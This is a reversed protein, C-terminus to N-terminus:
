FHLKLIIPLHDSYGKRNSPEWRVPFGTQPDLLFPLRIAHFSGPIYKLGREDFFGPSLLIHDITEWEKGFVYSGKEHSGSELWPEFLVPNRADPSTKSPNGTIFISRVAFDLPVDTGEQVFGTQYAAKVDTYETANENFDGAVAIRATPNEALIKEIRKKLMSAAELRASETKLVGGERSKWHNCFVFMTNKGIEIEAELINRVPEKEYQPLSYAGVRNIRFKSLIGTNTASGPVPVICRYAYVMNGGILVRLGDLVNLNEIEQLALIDPGTPTSKNIADALNHLRESYFEKTWHGPRLKFEQYESGDNKDDFLSEVNYSMITIDKSCSSFVGILLFVVLYSLRSPQLKM